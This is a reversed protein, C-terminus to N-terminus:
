RSRRIRGTRARRSPSRRVRGPAGGQRRSPSSYVRPQAGWRRLEVRTILVAFRRVDPRPDSLAALRAGDHLRGAPHGAERRAAEVRAPKASRRTIAACTSQAFARVAGARPARPWPSFLREIGKKANPKGEAFHEPRMHTLLYRHAWTHLTPTPAGRRARAAALGIQSPLVLKPKRAAHPAVGRREADFVLGKLREVDFARLCAERGGHALRSTGGSASTAGLVEFLWDAPAHGCELKMLQQALWVNVNVGLPCARARRRPRPALVAMPVEGPRKKGLAGAVM